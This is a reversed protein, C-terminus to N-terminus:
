AEQDQTIRSRGVALWIGLVVLWLPMLTGPIGPVGSSLMLVGVATTFVATVVALVRSVKREAFAMWIVGFSAIWVGLWPLYAGFDTLMYYVFLGVEDYAGLEPGLYNALAGKWGYGFALGAAAVLVGGTVVGAAISPHRREVYRRWAAAFVILAAVAFVGAMWGLRGPLVAIGLVDAQRVTYEGGSEWAESEAAPRVDFVLTGVTGLLGAASAWLPWATFRSRRTPATQAQAASTGTQTSM